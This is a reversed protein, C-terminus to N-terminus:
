AGGGDGRPGNAPVPRVRPDRRHSLDRQPTPLDRALTAPDCSVYAVRAPPQERLRLTVSWHLGPRPTNSPGGCAARAPDRARGRAGGRHFPRRARDAPRRAWAIAQRGCRRERRSRGRAALLAATDGIGGYLDWVTRRAARGAAGRGLRAGASGDEPNVKNSRRRLSGPTPGAVVRPAM